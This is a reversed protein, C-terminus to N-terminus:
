TYTYIYATDWGTMDVWGTTKYATFFEDAKVDSNQYAVAVYNSADGGSFEVLIYVEEDITPPTDFEVEEYVLSATLDAADGWVKSAMISSDSVKRITFTVDGTPKGYKSIWFGLKTVTRGSITLQQGLRFYLAGHIAVSSNHETQEETQEGVVVETEYSPSLETLALAAKGGGYKIQYSPALETEIVAAKGGGSKVLYKTMETRVKTTFGKGRGFGM